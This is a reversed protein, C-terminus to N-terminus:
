EVFSISNRIPNKKCVLSFNDKQYESLIGGHVIGEVSFNKKARSILSNLKEFENETNNSIIKEILQPTKMSEAQLQTFTINPYHLLHSEDSYPYLTLLVDVTHGLKKALYIAYTSDKGGSFLAALKM